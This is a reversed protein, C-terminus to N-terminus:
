GLRLKELITDLDTKNQVGLITKLCQGAAYIKTTPLVLIQEQDALEIEEDVNVKYVKLNTIKPNKYNGLVENYLDCPGCTPSWYDVLVLNPNQLVENKFNTKSIAELM